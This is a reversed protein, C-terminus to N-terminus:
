MEQDAAEIDQCDLYEDAVGDCDNDINDCYEESDPYVVENGDNCDGETAYFGDQDADRYFDDAGEHSDCGYVTLTSDEYLECPTSDTWVQVVKQPDTPTWWSLDICDWAQIHERLLESSEGDNNGETRGLPDGDDTSLVSEWDPPRATPVRNIGADEGACTSRDIPEDGCSGLMASLSLVSFLHHSHRMMIDESSVSLSTPM